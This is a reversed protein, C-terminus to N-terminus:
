NILRKILINNAMAAVSWGAEEETFNQSKLQRDFNNNLFLNVIYLMIDTDSM